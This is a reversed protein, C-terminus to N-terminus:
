HSYVDNRLTRVAYADSSNSQVGGGRTAIWGGLTSFEFSQPFHRLTFGTGSEKLQQELSPGFTGAQILASRSSTDIIKVKNFHKM